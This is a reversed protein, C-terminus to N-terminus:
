RATQGCRVNASFQPARGRKPSSPGWRVCHPRPQPEMGLKVKIWPVTQGCYVLTVFLVPCRDSPMPRVTKCVTAWFRSFQDLHQKARPSPHAWFHVGWRIIPHVNTIWQLPCTRQLPNRNPIHWTASQNDTHCCHVWRCTLRVVTCRPGLIISLLAHM